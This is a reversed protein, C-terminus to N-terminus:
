ARQNLPGLNRLMPGEALNCPALFFSLTTINSYYHNLNHSFRHKENKLGKGSLVSYHNLITDKWARFM